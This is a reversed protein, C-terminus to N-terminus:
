RSFFAAVDIELGPLVRSKLIPETHREWVGAVALWLQMTNDRPDVIWYEPVDNALYRQAKVDLDRKATSDSLIEAVMDPVGHIQNLVISLHENRVFCLDPRLVDGGDPLLIDVELICQGITHQDLYTEILHALRSQRRGHSPNASPSVFLVGDIMDYKYGDDPLGLYQERTVALERYLPGTRELTAGAPTGATIGM